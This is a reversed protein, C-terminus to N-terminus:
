PAPLAGLTAITNRHREATGLTLQSSKARGLYLHAPHEWTMGIGGHLQLHEEAALVVLDCCYSQAVAVSIGAEESSGTLADAADRAVARATSIGAWLDALRHKVAQFSGVARGFQYRTRVYDVTSDLCHQALGVQESALVGAATTLAHHLAREARPGTAVRPAPVRDLELTGIRRTLDLPTIPTRTVGPASSDLLYLGPGDEGIAPVVAKDAVELDVVTPVTGSLTADQARVSEPFPDDPATTLPVAVTGVASGTALTTVAESAVSAESCALLASTAMVASGLLPVPAVSSGLEEALVALERPGAGAGGLEEPVLLGTVGLDTALTSWLQRDYPHESECRALVATWDCRDRLLSRVSDRLEQEVEGYLLNPSSM